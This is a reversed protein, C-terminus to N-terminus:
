FFWYFYIKILVITFLIVFAGEQNFYWFWYSIDKLSRQSVRKWRANVAHTQM